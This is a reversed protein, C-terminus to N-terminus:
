RNKSKKDPADIHVDVDGGWHFSHAQEHTIKNQTFDPLVVAQLFAAGYILLLVFVRKIRKARVEFNIFSM